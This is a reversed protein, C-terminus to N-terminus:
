PPGGVGLTHLRGSLEFATLGSTLLVVKEEAARAVTEPAPTRGNVIVIGSLEKLVAVAVINVHVQITIWLQGQQSRAIVDSLLDGCYAGTVPRGSMEEAAMISLGTQQAVERVNM